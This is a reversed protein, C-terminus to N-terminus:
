KKIRIITNDIKEGRGGAIQALEDVNLEALKEGQAEAENKLTNREEETKM